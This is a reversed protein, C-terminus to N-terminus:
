DASKFKRLAIPVCVAIFIACWIFMAPVPHELQWSGHSNTGQSIHRIGAVFASVPDHEGIWRPVPKMTEIPVFTGAMFTLPLVIAFGIGQAADANGMVMGLTTGLITFSVLALLILGSMELVGVIGVDPSWGCILGIAVVISIGIIQELVQGIVPASLVGIRVVPLSRFRDIVGSSFDTATATASGIVGFACSQAIIGPLLFDQYSIGPVKIASGFVYLFLLTFMVPQITVDSLREPVRPIMRIQRAVLLVTERIYRLFASPRAPLVENGVYATQPTM